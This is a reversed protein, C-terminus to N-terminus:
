EHRYFKIISEVVHDQQEDSLEPYIPLSLIELAHRSAVPFDAPTHGFREYAKL